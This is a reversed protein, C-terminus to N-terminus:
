DGKKPQLGAIEKIQGVMGRGWARLQDIYTLTDTNCVTTRGRADRCRAPPAAPEHPAATLKPDLAVYVPM